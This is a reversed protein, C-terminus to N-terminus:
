RDGRVGSIKDALWHDVAQRIRLSWNDSQAGAFM